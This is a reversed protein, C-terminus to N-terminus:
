VPLETGLRVREAQPREYKNLKLVTISVIRAGTGAPVHEPGDAKQVTREKWKYIELVIEVTSQNGIADNFIEGNMYVPIPGPSFQDDFKKSFKFYFGYESEKLSNKLGLGQIAKRTATDQPYFDVSLKGYQDVQDERVRAWNVKGTIIVESM